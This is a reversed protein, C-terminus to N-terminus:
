RRRRRRFPIRSPRYMFSKHIQESLNNETDVEEIEESVIEAIGHRGINLRLFGRYLSTYGNEIRIVDGKRFKDIQNDWLNLVVCGTGDGVLAESVRHLVSYDRKSTISRPNGVGIIKVTINLHRLSPKLTNVSATDTEETSM